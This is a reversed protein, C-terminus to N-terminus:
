KEVTLDTFKLERPKFWALIKYARENQYGLKRALARSGANLRVCDWCTHSGAEECLRILHACAATAFGQGRYLKQTTIGLERTGCIEMDAYAECITESHHLICVAIGHQLFNEMSGYRVLNDNRKPSRGWLTSDMRQISYGPPLKGLYPSLDSSGIPRDFELCEAGADPNSPFLATSPDRDRFGMAVIGEQRLLDVAERLVEASYQGGRYLTGDDAEWVLGWHPHLPDDTFIKGSNGGAIVALARIGTPVSASFMNAFGPPLQGPIIQIM